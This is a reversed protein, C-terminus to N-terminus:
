KAIVWRRLLGVAPCRGRLLPDLTSAPRPSSFHCRTLSRLWEKIVGTLAGAVGGGRREEPLRMQTVAARSNTGQRVTTCADSPVVVLERGKQLSSIVGLVQSVSRPSFFIKWLKHARRLQAINRSAESFVCWAFCQFKNQFGRIQNRPSPVSRKKKFWFYRILRCSRLFLPVSILNQVCVCLWVCINGLQACCTFCKNHQDAVM